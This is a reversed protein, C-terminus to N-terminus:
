LGWKRSTMAQLNGKNWLKMTQGRMWNGPQTWNCIRIPQRRGNANSSRLWKMEVRKIITEKGGTRIEDTWIRDVRPMKAGRKMFDIKM